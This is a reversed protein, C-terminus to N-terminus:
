VSLVSNLSFLFHEYANPTTIQVGCLWCFHAKCYICTMKNCGDIKQIMTQCNPCPKSSRKLYETTLYKEVLIQIQRRGYKKALMQKAHKDNSQYAKILEEKKALARNCPMAGHYGENCYVCFSYDCIYCTALAADEDRIFPFQCGKRPCFILNEMSRLTIQMLTDEYKTFLNPCFKKIEGFSISIDCDSTPCTIGHVDNENIKLAIYEEICQRCYVHNCRELKVCKKGSYIEFCVICEHFSQKFETKCQQRDYSRLFQLPDFPLTNCVVREDRQYTWNLHFYSSRNCYMSYLLSIDLTDEIQLFKLLDSRLFEFWLFLIEQGKNSLWIDDLKKCISSVQWCSLWSSIIHFKPPSEVPYNNPLLVYVRIPPLYKVFYKSNSCAKTETDNDCVNVIKLEVLGNEVKPFVNYYCQIVGNMSYSFEKYNYIASLSLIENKQRNDTQQSM